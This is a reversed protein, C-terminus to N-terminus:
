VGAYIVKILCEGPKLTPKEIEEIKLEKWNKLVAAKL